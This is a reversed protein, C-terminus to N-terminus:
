GISKKIFNGVEQRLGGVNKEGSREHDRGCLYIKKIRNTVQRRELGGKGLM